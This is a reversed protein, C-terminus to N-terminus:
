PRMRRLEPLVQTGILRLTAARDSGLPPGFSIHRVGLALLEAAGTIVDAASGAIGLDLMRPSVSATAAAEGESGCVVQARDNACCCRVCM